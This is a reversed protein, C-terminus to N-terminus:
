FWTPSNQNSPQAEGTGMGFVFVLWHSTLSSVDPTKLLLWNNDIDCILCDLFPKTSLTLSCCVDCDGVVVFECLLAVKAM